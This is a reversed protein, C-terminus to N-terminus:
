VVSKRDRGPRERPPRIDAYRLGELVIEEIGTDKPFPPHVRGNRESRARLEPISLGKKKLAMRIAAKWFRSRLSAPM